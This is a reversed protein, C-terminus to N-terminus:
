ALVSVSSSSSRIRWGDFVGPYPGPLLHHHRPPSHHPRKPRSPHLHSRLWRRRPLSQRRLRKLHYWSRAGSPSSLAKM